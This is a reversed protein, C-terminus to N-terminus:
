GPRRIGEGDKVKKTILAREDKVVRPLFSEPITRMLREKMIHWLFSSTLNSRIRKPGHPNSDTGSSVHPTIKGHSLSIRNTSSLSISM